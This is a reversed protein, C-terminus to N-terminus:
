DFRILFHGFSTTPLLPFRPKSMMLFYDLRFWSVVILSRKRSRWWSSFYVFFALSLNRNEALAHNCPFNGFINSYISTCRIRKDAVLTNQFVQLPKLSKNLYVLFKHELPALSSFYTSQSRASEPFRQAIMRDSTLHNPTVRRTILSNDEMILWVAKKKSRCRCFLIVHFCNENSQFGFAPRTAIKKPWFLKERELKFRTYFRNSTM